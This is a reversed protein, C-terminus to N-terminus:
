VNSTDDGYDCTYCNIFLGFENNAEKTEIITIFINFVINCENELGIFNLTEIASQHGLYKSHSTYTYRKILM